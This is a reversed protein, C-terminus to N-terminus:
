KLEYFQIKWNEDQRVLEVTLYEKYNLDIEKFPMPEIPISFILRYGNKITYNPIPINIGSILLNEYETKINAKSTGLFNWKPIEETEGSISCSASSIKLESVETFTEDYPYNEIHYSYSDILYPILADTEKTFYAIIFENLTIIADKIIPSQEMATKALSNIDLVSNNEKSNEIAKNLLEEEMHMTPKIESTAQCGIIFLLTLLLLIIGNRKKTKSLINQFRKKMIKTGGSFQTSLYNKSKDQITSTKKKPALTNFLTEAYTKRINYEDLTEVNNISINNGALNNSITESIVAEDCSLEMDIVAEKCM